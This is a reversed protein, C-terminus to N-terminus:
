VLHWLGNEERVKGLNAARQLHKQIMQREFSSYLPNVLMAKRYIIGSASLEAVTKPGTTLAELIQADREQIDKEFRMVKQTFKERDYIRGGHSTVYHEVHINRIRTLSRLFQDIDSVINAYWPGMPTLDIDSTFLLSIDEFLLGIHGPTHGPLHVVKVKNEKLDLYDGDEVNLSIHREMMDLSSFLMRLWEKYFSEETDAYKLYNEFNAIAAQDLKHCIFKADKFLSGLSRHDAHYHTNLVFKVIKQSAISELYSFSASPDVITTNPDHILISNSFFIDKSNHGWVFEINGIQAGHPLQKIEAM